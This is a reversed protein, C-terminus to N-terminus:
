GNAEHARHLWTGGIREMRIARPGRAVSLSSEIRALLPAAAPAEPTARVRRVIEAAILRIGITLSQPREADIEGADLAAVCAASAEQMVAALSALAGLEGSAAGAVALRAIIARVLGTLGATGVADETDRFPLAILPYANGKPGLLNEAPVRCAILRLGCHLAPSLTEPTPMPIEALGPTGRPVIFFSYHKRGEDQATIALVAFLDAIPGNTIYAKEGDIIYADGDQRAVTTLHKPHAGVKPESIAVAMTSTGAALAPLTRAQQASTGFGALFFRAVMQHGAWALGFGSVGGAEVLAMEAAAIDAYRGGDGGHEGLAQWLDMPFGDQPPMERGALHRRAFATMAAHM